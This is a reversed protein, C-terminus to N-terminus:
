QHKSAAQRPGLETLSWKLAILCFAVSYSMQHGGRVAVCVPTDTAFSHVCGSVRGVFLDLTVEYLIFHVRCLRRGTFNLPVRMLFPSTLFTRPMYTARPEPHVCAGKVPM